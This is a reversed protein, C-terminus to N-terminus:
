VAPACVTDTGYYGDEAFIKTKEGLTPVTFLQVEDSASTSEAGHGHAIAGGKKGCTKQDAGNRCSRSASFGVAVGGDVRGGSKQKMAGKSRSGFLKVSIKRLRESGFLEDWIKELVQPDAKALKKELFDIMYQKQRFCFHGDAIQAWYRAAQETQSADPQKLKGLFSAVRMSFDERTLNKLEQRMRSRWGDEVLSDVADPQQATGQVMVSLEAVNLHPRVGADVIYGLQHETRLFEFARNSALVSLINLQVKEATTPVGFQYVNLVADNQDNDIPNPLRVEIDRHQLTPKLVQRRIEPTYLVPQLKEINESLIRRTSNGLFSAKRQAASFSNSSTKGSGPRVPSELLVLNGKGLKNIGEVTKDIVAKSDSLGLNGVALGTLALRRERGSNGGITSVLGPLYVDVFTRFLEEETGADEDLVTLLEKRTAHHSETISSYFEMAHQVAMQGSVDRLDELLKARAQNFLLRLEGDAGATRSERGSTKADPPLVGREMRGLLYGKPDLAAPVVTEALKPLHEAYGTFAFHFGGPTPGSSHDFKYHLGCTAFQDTDPELMNQVLLVHIKAFAARQTETLPTLPAASVEINNSSMSSTSSSKSSVM